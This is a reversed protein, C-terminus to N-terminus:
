AAQSPHPLLPVLPLWEARCRIRRARAGDFTAVAHGCDPCACEPDLGRLIGVPDALGEAQDCRILLHTLAWGIGWQTEFDVVLTAVYEGGM